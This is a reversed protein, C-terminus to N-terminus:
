RIDVLRAYIVAGNSFIRILVPINDTDKLLLMSISSRHYPNNKDRRRIDGKVLLTNYSKGKISFAGESSSGKLMYNKQNTNINFDFDKLKEPASRRVKYIVSLHDQTDPLVERRVGALTMVRKQQNYSAERVLDPKGRLSIRQRFLLPNGSVKDLYSDFEASGSLFPSIIKPSKASVSLHYVKSGNLEEEKPQSFYAEGVPIFGFLEVRYVLIGDKLGCSNILKATIGRPDTNFRVWLVLFFILALLFIAAKKM